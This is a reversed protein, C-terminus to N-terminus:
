YYFTMPKLNCVQEPTISLHANVCRLIFGRNQPLTEAYVNFLVALMNGAYSALYDLNKRADAQTVHGPFMRQREDVNAVLAAQNSEILM